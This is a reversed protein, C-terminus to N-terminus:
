VDHGVEQKHTRRGIDTLTPRGLGRRQKLRERVSQPLIIKSRVQAGTQAAEGEGHTPVALFAPAGGNSQDFAQGVIEGLDNIDNAYLLYLSSDPPILTNLDTMVGKQWLFARCNGNEDCSEGVVQSKSNIAFAVSLFDGSLTGLDTIGGNEWLVAHETADGLLDSVGVVQGRNNIDYALNNM